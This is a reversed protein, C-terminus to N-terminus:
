FANIILKQVCGDSQRPAEEKGLLSDFRRYHRMYCPALDIYEHGDVAGHRVIHDDLYILRKEFAIDIREPMYRLFIVKRVINRSHADASKRIDQIDLFLLKIGFRDGGANTIDGFLGQAVKICHTDSLTRLEFLIYECLKFRNLLEDGHDLGLRGFGNLFISFLETM